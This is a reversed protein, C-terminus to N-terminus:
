AAREPSRVRTFYCAAYNMEDFYFDVKNTAKSYSLKSVDKEFLHLVLAHEDAM